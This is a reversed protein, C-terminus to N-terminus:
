HRLYDKFYEQGYQKLDLIAYYVANRCDLNEYFVKHRLGDRHGLM